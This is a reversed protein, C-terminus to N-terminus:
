QNCQLVLLQRHHGLVGVLTLDARAAELLGAVENAVEPDVRSLLGETTVFAGLTEGDLGREERMELSVFSTLAPGGRDGM